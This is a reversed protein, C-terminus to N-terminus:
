SKEISKKGAPAPVGSTATEAKDGGTIGLTKAVGMGPISGIAARMGAAGADSLGEAAGKGDKKAKITADMAEAGVKIATAPLKGVVPVYDIVGAVTKAVAVQGEVMKELPNLGGKGAEKKAM